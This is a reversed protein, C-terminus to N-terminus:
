SEWGYRSPTVGYVNKFSKSFYYADSYGVAEAIELLPKQPYQLILKQAAELRITTIYKSLSCGQEKKFINSLYSANMGVAEAVLNLSLDFDAYNQNIFEKAAEIKKRASPTRHDKLIQARCANYAERYAKPLDSLHPYFSSIGICISDQGTVTVQIQDCLSRLFSEEECNAFLLLIKDIQNLQLCVYNTDSNQILSEIVDPRSLKTSEGQFKLLLLTYEADPLIGLTQRIGADDRPATIGSIYELLCQEKQKQRIEAQLKQLSNTQRRVLLLKERCKQLERNLEKPDVPKLVFSSAGFSLAQKAYEFEGYATLILIQTEPLVDKIRESVEIGNLYPINIDMVVIDPKKQLIQEWADEGDEAEGALEMELSQWDITNKVLERQLFEDDVIFVNMIKKM